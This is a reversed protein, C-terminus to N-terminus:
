AKIHSNIVELLNNKETMLNQDVEFRMNAQGSKVQDITELIKNINERISKIDKNNQDVVSQNNLVVNRMKLNQEDTERSREDVFAMKKLMKKEINEIILLAKNLSDSGVDGSDPKADKKLAEFM